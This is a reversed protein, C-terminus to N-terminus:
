NQYIIKGTKFLTTWKEKTKKPISKKKIAMFNTYLSTEGQIVYWLQSEATNDSEYSPCEITFIIWPHEAKEDKEIFTLKAKQCGQKTQEFMMNMAKDMPIGVVGKIAQMNVLETWNEFTEGDRLMEILTMQESEQNSAIKWNEEEPFYISLSEGGQQKNGTQCIASLSITM